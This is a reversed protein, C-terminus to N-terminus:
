SRRLWESENLGVRSLKAAFENAIKQAHSDKLDLIWQFIKGDTSKFKYSGDEEKESEVVGNNTQKFKIINLCHSSSGNVALKLYQGNYDKFIISFKKECPILPLFLFNREETTEIRVSDCRQQICVFYETKDSLSQRIVSGLSLVPSYAPTIFSSKHHTLIAFEEHSHEINELKFSKVAATFLPGGSKEFEEYQGEDMKNSPQLELLKKWGSKMWIKKNANNAPISFKNTKKGAEFSYPQYEADHIDLWKEISDINSTTSIQSYSLLSEISYVILNELISEAEEPTTLLARHTLYAEDLDKNFTALLHHSNRRIISVAKLVTNSVLGETLETFEDIIREPLQDDTIATKSVKGNTKELVVIKSHGFRYICGSSDQTGTIGMTELKPIINEALLNKYKPDNTFIVILRLETSKPSDIVSFLLEKAKEGNDHHMQWDLIVVDSKKLVTKISDLPEEASEIEFLACHIGKKMFADTFKKPDVNRKFEQKVTTSSGKISKIESRGVTERTPVKLNDQKIEIISERFILDDVYAVTGLYESVIKKSYQHFTM